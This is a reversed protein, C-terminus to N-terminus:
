KEDKLLSDIYKAHEIDKKKFEVLKAKCYLKAIQQDIRSILPWNSETADLSYKYEVLQVATMKSVDNTSSIAHASYSIAGILLLVPVAKRM